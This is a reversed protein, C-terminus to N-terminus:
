RRRVAAESRGPFKGPVPSDQDTGGVRHGRLVVELKLIPRETGAEGQKGLRSDVPTVAIQSGPFPTLM